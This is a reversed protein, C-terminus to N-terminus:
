EITGGLSVAHFIIKCTRLSRTFFHDKGSLKLFELRLFAEVYHLYQDAASRLLLGHVQRGQGALLLEGVLQEHGRGVEHDDFEARVRGHLPLTEAGRPLGLRLGATAYEPRCRLAM